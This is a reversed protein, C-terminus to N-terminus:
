LREVEAEATRNNRFYFRFGQRVFLLLIWLYEAVTPSAFAVFISVIFVLPTSLTYLTFVKLSHPEATEDNIFLNKKYVHWGILYELIGIAAFCAAYMICADRNGIHNGFTVAVFPFLTIFFLLIVNLDIIRRDYERILAFLRTHSIWFRSVILFTILYTLFIPLHKVIDPFLSRTGAPFYTQMINLVPLTIAFAFVSDTFNALREKPWRSQKIPNIKDTMIKM